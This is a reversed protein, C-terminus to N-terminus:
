RVQELNSKSHHTTTKASCDESHCAAKNGENKNICMKDNLVTEHINLEAGGNSRKTQQQSLGFGTMENDSKCIQLPVKKSQKELVQMTNHSASKKGRRATSTSSACTNLSLNINSKQLVSGVNKLFFPSNAKKHNVESSNGGSASNDSFDSNTTQGGSGTKRQFVSIDRKACKKANMVQFISSHTPNKVSMNQVPKYVQFISSKCVSLMSSSVCTNKIPSHREAKKKGDVQNTTKGNMQLLKGKFIPIIKSVKQPPLEFASNVPMGLSKVVPLEPVGPIQGNNMSKGTAEISVEDTGERSTLFARTEPEKILREMWHSNEMSCSSSIKPLTQKRRPAETLSVVCVMEDALKM